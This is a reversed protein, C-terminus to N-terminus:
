AVLLDPRREALEVVARYDYFPDEAALLDHAEQLRRLDAPTDLAARVHSYNGLPCTVSRLQYREPRRYVFPTVHEREYDDRSEHAAELLCQARVLEVDLGDPYSPELNNALYDVGHAEAYREIAEEVLRPCLLPRDACIRMILADEAGLQEIALAFRGLVDEAPGRVTRAGLSACATVIADDEANTSTAVVLELPREVEALRELVRGLVTTGAFPALSKGPFRRSGMRAQVITLVRDAAM